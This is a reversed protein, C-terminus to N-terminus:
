ESPAGPPRSGTTRKADPTPSRATTVSALARVTTANELFREARRPAFATNIVNTNVAMSTITWAIEIRCVTRWSTVRLLLDVSDSCM